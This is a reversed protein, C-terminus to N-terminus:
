DQPAPSELNSIRERVEGAEEGSDGIKEFIAEAAQLCYLEKDKKDLGKYADALTINCLAQIRTAIPEREMRQMPKKLELLAGKYNQDELCERANKLCRRIWMFENKNLEVPM